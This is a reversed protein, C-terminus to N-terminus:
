NENSLFTKRLLKSADTELTKYISEKPIWFSEFEEEKKQLDELQGYM